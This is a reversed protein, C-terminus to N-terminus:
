VMDVGGHHIVFYSVVGTLSLHNRKDFPFISLAKKFSPVSSCPPEIFDLIVM